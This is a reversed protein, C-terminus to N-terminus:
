EGLSLRGGTPFSNGLGNPNYIDFTIGDDDHDIPLQLASMVLTSFFTFTRNSFIPLELVSIHFKCTRLVRSCM